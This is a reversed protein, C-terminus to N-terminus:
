NQTIADFAMVFAIRNEIENAKLIGIVESKRPDLVYFENFAVDNSSRAEFKIQLFGAISVNKKIHTFDVFSYRAGVVIIAHGDSPTSGMNKLGMMVPQNHGLTKLLSMAGRSTYRLNTYGLAKIIEGITAPLNADQRKKIEAVIADQSPAQKYASLMLYQVCSAWCLLTGNQIAIPLIHDCELIYDNRGVKQSKRLYQVDTNLLLPLPQGNITVMHAIKEKVKNARSIVEEKAKIEEDMNHDIALLDVNHHAKYYDVSRITDDYSLPSGIDGTKPIRVVPEVGCNTISFILTIFLMM